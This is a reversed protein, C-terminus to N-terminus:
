VGPARRTTCRGNASDIAHPLLSKLIELQELAAKVNGPISLVLRGKSVYGGCRSLYSNLSYKLSEARLMEGLGPIEFDCLKTLTQPAIDRSGIGTGGCVVVLESRKRAAVFERALADADFDLTLGDDPVFDMASLWDNVARRTVEGHSPTRAPECLVLTSARIAEAAGQKEDSPM